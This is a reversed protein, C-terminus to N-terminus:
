AATSMLSRRRGAAASAVERRELRRFRRRYAGHPSATLVGADALVRLLASAATRDLSWRNEVDVPTLTLSPSDLFAEQIQVVLDGATRAGRRMVLCGKLTLIQDTCLL